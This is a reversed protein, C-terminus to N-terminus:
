GHQSVNLLIGCGVLTTVLSSGGYSIFPLPTGTTPLLNLTVSVNVLAQLVIASTIGCALLRGFHDPAREGALYGRWAFIGFLLLLLSGGVLGLEESLISFIFDSNALPLFHLKQVSQGLGLGFTGGSGVAILSQLVQFGKGLPDEEPQMFAFLRARRYPVSIVLFWLLPLLLLAGAWLFRWALGGLFLMTGAVAVVLTATGMDPELLVLIAVLSVVFGCSVLSSAQNVRDWKQDLQYALYLVLVLKALESPQVSVGGVFLWRRTQNVMPAYLVAVLLVLVGVLLPYLLWPRRLQRYEVHMVAVMAALGLVAAVLQKVFPTLPAARAAEPSVVSASYVMVLGLGLLLLVVTFLSKDFALKKAM